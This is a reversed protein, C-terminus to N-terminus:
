LQLLDNRSGELRIKRISTMVLTRRLRAAEFTVWDGATLGNLKHKGAVPFVMTMVPMWVSRDPSELPVHQLTIARRSIDISVIEGYSRVHRQPAIRDHTRDLRQLWDNPEVASAASLTISGVLLVGAIKLIRRKSSMIEEQGIMVVSGSVERNRKEFVYTTLRIGKSFACARM